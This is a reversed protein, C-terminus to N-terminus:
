MTSLVNPNPLADGTQLVGDPKLIGGGDLPLVDEILFDGDGHPAIPPLPHGGGDPPGEEPPAGDGGDRDLNIIDSYTRGGDVSVPIKVRIKKVLQGDPRPEPYIEIYVLFNHMFVRLQEPSWSELSGVSQHFMRLTEEFSAAGDRAAQVRISTEEILDDLEDMSQNHRQLIGQLDDFMADYQGDGEDLREIRSLLRSKKKALAAREAQLKDLKATLEDLDESRSLTQIMEKTFYMNNVAQQIVKVVQEDLVDERISRGYACPKGTNKQAHKCSYYFIPSYAGGSPNKKTGSSNGYMPQGCEPCRVIKSLVHVHKPGYHGQQVGATAKRKAQVKDWLEDSVIAEHLGDYMEYEGRMVRRYEDKGQIKELGFRGHVIKGTYVPNDLINKVILDTFTSYKGNAPVPRRYGNENLWRAVGSYGMKTGAYKDFILRVLKAGDEDVALQVGKGHADKVVKYGLPPPGGNWGGERAKQLRGAKSQARINDREIEAVAALVTIILKGADKSSDIGDEVCILDVDNRKMAQLSNLVDAANRGFRSLKFVLVYDIKDPNGNQIREMMKMFEPRGTINKGSKGEDSFEAAVAMGEYEAARLLRDRQADLSYGDVQMQTSVRTYIYCRRKKKNSVAM